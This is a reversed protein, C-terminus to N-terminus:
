NKFFVNARFFTIAEDVIDAKDSDSAPALGKIHTKLPLFSVWLSKHDMAISSRWSYHAASLCSDGGTLLLDALLLSARFLKRLLQNIAGVPLLSNLVIILNLVLPNGLPSMQSCPCCM